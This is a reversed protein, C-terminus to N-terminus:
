IIFSADCWFENNSVVLLKHLQFILKIVKIWCFTHIDVAVSTGDIVAVLNV